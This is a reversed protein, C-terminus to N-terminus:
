GGLLATIVRSYEIAGNVNPHGISAIGCFVSARSGALACDQARQPAVGGQNEHDAASFDAEVGWLWAEPAFIANHLGFIPQAFQVRPGSEQVAREIEIRSREAFTRCRDIITQRAAATLIGGGIMSAPLGILPIGVGILLMALMMLDSDDSVIQYYGTVIVRARPFERTVTALLVLMDEYCHQTTEETLNTTAIPSVIEEVGIDNIGGDLLILDITDRAGTFTSIQQLITPYAAPVEGPLAPSANTDGVGIVAGSHALIDRYVGIEGQLEIIRREIQASFKLDDRLGQGWMISDGLVLIRYTDLIINILNSASSDALIVQVDVVEGTPNRPTSTPRILKFRLTNSDVYQIDTGTVYQDLVRVHAGPAFGTGVLNVWTSPRFRAPPNSDSSGGNSMAHHVTPLIHLTAKNSFTGDAQKVQVSKQRGGPVKGVKFTLLTDSSVTTACPVGEVDVIDTRAFRKGNVTVTDGERAQTPSVALIAPKSLATLFEDRDISQMRLAQRQYQGDPGRGGHYGSSGDEGRGGWKGFSTPCGGLLGSRNDGPSGGNGGNGGLGPEGGEGGKGATTDVYFGGGIYRNIIPQPAYLSFRGGNGGGGGIKGDGGRGGRGGNGGNGPGNACDIGGWSPTWNKGKAGNGGDGGDGGDGGKFGDQGTVIIDPTGTMDLTWIEIEPGHDGDPAPGGAAGETGNLGQTGGMYISQQPTDSTRPKGPKGPRPKDAMEWGINVNNGISISNAIIVLWRNPQMLVIQTDDAVEIWDAAWYAVNIPLVSLSYLMVPQSPRPRPSPPIPKQFPIAKLINTIGGIKEIIRPGAVQGPKVRVVSGFIAQRAVIGDRRPLLLGPTPTIIGSVNLKGLSSLDTVGMEGLIIKHYDLRQTTDDKDTVLVPSLPELSKRLPTVFHVIPM